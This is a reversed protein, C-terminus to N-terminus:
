KKEIKQTNRNFSNKEALNYRISFRCVYKSDYHITRNVRLFHSSDPSNFFFDIKKKRNKPM